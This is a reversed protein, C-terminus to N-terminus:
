VHTFQLINENTLVNIIVLKIEIKNNSNSNNNNNNNNFGADCAWTPFIFNNIFQKRLGLSMQAVSFQFVYRLSAVMISQARLGVLREPTLCLTPIASQRNWIYHRNWIYIYIFIASEIHINGIGYIYVINIYIEGYTM